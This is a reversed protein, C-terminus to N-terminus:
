QLEETKKESIPVTSPTTTAIGELAPKGEKLNTLIKKVEENDPNFKQIEIFQELAKEKEGEKDYILGLFYRANSYNQNLLIARKFENKANNYDGERYYIVGLQFALGIDFPAIRKTEELKAIVEKTKGQLQYVVAIQYHAPAYDPKLEIAEKFEELAKELYENKEKEKGKLKSLTYFENIYVLGEQTPIEPNTPQLEKAREYAKIAWDGAGTTIGMMDKYIKGRVTWNMFNNPNLDTAAKATNIANAISVQIKQNIEESSLKENKLIENIKGSYVQSLNRWYFDTKPDFKTASRIKTIADETKGENLELLGQSYKANAIYRQSDLFLIGIGLIFVIVLVLSVILTLFSSPALEYNKIKKSVLAIFGAMIVWWVFEISLSFSYLFSALTFSLWSTLIGLGLIFYPQNEDTTKIFSYGFYGMVVLIFLLTIIGLVGHTSLVNLVKSASNQFNINWFNTQNLSQSKFRAYDYIFTGPGSGFFPSERLVEKSIKFSATQSPAIEMPVNPLNPITIRFVGFIVALTLILIPLLIWRTESTKRYTFFAFLLIMSFIVIWWSVKFNLLILGFLAIIVGLGFIFRLFRKLLVVLVVLLPLIGALFISLSNPTSITNFSTSQTFNFPFLFKGFLQSIGYLSVLISSFGLIIFLKLIENKKQFVNIILFFLIVLGLLSLFSESIQLPWGWFSGYSWLSFITSLGAAALFSLVPISLFHFNFELRRTLLIKIILCASSIFVLFVLLAQKNFDLVNTTWPLFFIPLLFILLYISFKSIKEYIQGSSNSVLTQTQEQM